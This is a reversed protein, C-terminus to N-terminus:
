HPRNELAEVRKRLDNLKTIYTEDNMTMDQAAGRLGCSVLLLVAANTLLFVILCFELAFGLNASQFFFLLIVTVAINLASLIIGFLSLRNASSFM